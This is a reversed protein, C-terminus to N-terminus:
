ILAALRSWALATRRITQSTTRQLLAIDQICEAVVRDVESALTAKTRQEWTPLWFSSLERDKNVLELIVRSENIVQTWTDPGHIEATELTKALISAHFVAGIIARLNGHTCIANRLVDALYTRSDSRQRAAWVHPQIRMAAGNGGSQIYSKDKSEYFNSFWSVSANVLNAAAAKTGVGGGLSYSLWVPLEIKAFSEVDFYGNGRIARSTSLRLQTDDSYCGAPLPVYAGYRGGVLRRWEMASSVRDTHIRKRLGTVDTLESMFGLADASAAWLASNLIREKDVM